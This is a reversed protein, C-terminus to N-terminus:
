VGRVDRLDAARVRLDGLDAVVEAVLEDLLPLAELVVVPTVERVGRVQTAGPGPVLRLALAVPDGHRQGGADRLGQRARDVEAVEVGRRDVGGGPVAVGLREDHGVGAFVEVPQPSAIVLGRRSTCNKPYAVPSAAFLRANEIVEINRSM